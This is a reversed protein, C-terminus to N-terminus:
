QLIKPQHQCWLHLPHIKDPFVLDHYGSVLIWRSLFTRQLAVNKLWIPLPLLMTQLQENHTMLNVPSYLMYLDRQWVKFFM